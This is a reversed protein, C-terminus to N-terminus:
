SGIPAMRMGIMVNQIYGPDLGGTQLHEAGLPISEGIDVLFIGWLCALLDTHLALGEVSTGEESIDENKTLNVTLVLQHLERM